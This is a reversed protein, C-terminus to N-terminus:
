YKEGSGQSIGEFDLLFANEQEVDVRPAHSHALWSHSRKSLGRAWPDWCGSGVAGRGHGGGRRIECESRKM